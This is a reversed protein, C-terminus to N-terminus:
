AFGDLARLAVDRVVGESDRAAALLAERDAHGGLFCLEAPRGREGCVVALQGFQRGLDAAEVKGIGLVCLSVEPHWLGDDGVGLGPWAALRRQAIVRALEECALRNFEPRARHSGPNCATVFCWATEEAARLAEDMPASREGVRLRIYESPAQVWYSTGCYARILDVTLPM